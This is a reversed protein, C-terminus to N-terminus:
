SQKKRKEAKRQARQQKKLFKEELRKNKREDRVQGVQEDL